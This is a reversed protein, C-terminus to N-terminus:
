ARRKRDRVQGLEIKSQESIPWIFRFLGRQSQHRVYTLRALHREAIQRAVFLGLGLGRRRSPRSSRVPHRYFRLFILEESGVPVGKGEDLIDIVLSEDLGYANVQVVGSGGHEIANQIVESIAREVLSKRGEIVLDLDSQWHLRIVSKAADGSGSHTEGIIRELLAHMPIPELPQGGQEVSFSTHLAVKLKEMARLANAAQQLIVQACEAASESTLEGDALLTSYGAISSLPTRLEHDILSQFDAGVRSNLEQLASETVFHDLDSNEIWTSLRRGLAEMPGSLQGTAHRGRFKPQVFFALQVPSMAQEPYYVYVNVPWLKRQEGQFAPRFWGLPPSHQTRGSFYADTWQATAPWQINESDMDLVLNLRGGEIRYCAGAIYGLSRLFRSFVDRDLGNLAHLASLEM